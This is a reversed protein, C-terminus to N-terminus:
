LYLAQCVQIQVNPDRDTLHKELVKLAARAGASEETAPGISALCTAAALRQRPSRSDLLEILKDVARASEPGIATLASMVLVRFDEDKDDLAEVLLPVADKAPPGIAEFTEVLVLRLAQDKEEFAKRLVPLEAQVAALNDKDEKDAAIWWLAQAVARRY